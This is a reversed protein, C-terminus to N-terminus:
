LRSERLPLCGRDCRLCFSSHCHVSFFFSFFFALAAFRLPRTNSWKQKVSCSFPCLSYSPFFSLIFSVLFFPFLSIFLYLSFFSFLSPSLFLSFSLLFSLLFCKFLSLPPFHHMASAEPKILRLGGCIYLPLDIFHSSSLPSLFSLLLLPTTGARYWYRRM